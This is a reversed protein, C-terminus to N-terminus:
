RGFQHLIQQYDPPAMVGGIIYLIIAVTWILMINNINWERARMWGFIFAILGGIGICFVLVISAIGLGTQGRQFMKIVVLIFCVLSALGGVVSLVNGVAQM